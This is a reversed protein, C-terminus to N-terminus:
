EDRVKTTLAVMVAAVRETPLHPVLAAIQAAPMNALTGALQEAPMAALIAALAATAPDTPEPPYNSGVESGPRTWGALESVRVAYPSGKTPDPHTYHGTMGPQAHGLIERRLAEPTGAEDWLTACWHRLWHLHLSPLGICARAYLWGYGQRTGKPFTRGNIQQTTRFAKAPNTSPFVLGDTGPEAWEDLHDLVDGVIHPPVPVVRNGKRGTKTESEHRQKGYTSVGKNV